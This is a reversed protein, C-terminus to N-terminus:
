GCSRIASGKEEKAKAVCNKFRSTVLMLGSTHKYLEKKIMVHRMHNRLFDIVDPLVKRYYRIAEKEPGSGRRFHHNWSGVIIEDAYRYIRKVLHPLDTLIPIWPEISAITYIGAFKAQRLCEIRRLNGPANPELLPLNADSTITMCVSVNSFEKILEFDRRVLDSKIILIVKVDERSALIPILSRTLKVRAEIPQYPDTMSSVMIRADLPVTKIQKAALEMANEVVSPHRWNIEKMRSITRAYCPYQCNHACGIYHNCNIDAWEVGSKNLLSKRRIFPVIM